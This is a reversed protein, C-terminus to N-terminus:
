TRLMKDLFELTLEHALLAADAKYNGGHKDVFGHYAGGHTHITIKNNPMLRLKIQEQINKNLHEDLEALQMFHPKQINRSAGLTEEITVPYYSISADVTSECAMMFSLRGGIGYGLCAVKGRISDYNRLFNLTSKLDSVAHTMNLKQQRELARSEDEPKINELDLKEETRWFLDPCIVTYGHKTLENCKNVIDDNIGYADHILIIAPAPKDPLTILAQFNKGDYSPINIKPM